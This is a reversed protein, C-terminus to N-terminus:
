AWCEEQYQGTKYMTSFYSEAEEVNLGGYKMFVQKLAFAVDNPMKDSSGSLLVKAGGEEIWEWLIEGNERIKDQVYIKKEQDRSCAAWLILQDQKVYEEWQTKYYFDKNAYRCGFILLNATAGSEIREELFSRMPAIGTGPGIAILPIESSPPLNLTGKTIRVRSIVQNEELQSLWKTFVGRRISRLNTKYKVIAICLEMTKPHACLSSAISFSRPQLQPFLDLLYDFPIHFPKFDFLIEFITRRPKMCYSWLDDQGEPSAFERLKETFNEDSTFYALMEFFSRRPVGFIDLYYVFLDRFTMTSPWHPPLTFDENNPLIRISQDAYESWGIQELFINVDKVLNQPMMVAIDGAEYNFDEDDCTLKIHRVDQFHDSATIRKNEQLTLNFEGPLTIPHGSTIVEESLFELKFSPPLLVDDPIAPETSPFQEKVTDWLKKSWPIFEGDLGMYHQDDCDGREILLTAGM